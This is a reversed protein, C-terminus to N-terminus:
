KLVKKEYGRFGKEIKEKLDFGEEGSYGEGMSKRGFRLRAFQRCFLVVNRIRGWSENRHESLDGCKASSGRIKMEKEGSADGAVM